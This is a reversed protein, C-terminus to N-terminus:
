AASCGGRYTGTAFTRAAMFVCFIPTASMSAGGARSGSFTHRQVLGRGGGVGFHEFTGDLLNRRSQTSHRM